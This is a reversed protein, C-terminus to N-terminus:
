EFFDYNKIFDFAKKVAPSLDSVNSVSVGIIRKEPPMIRRADADCSERQMVFPATALSALPIETESSTETDKKLICMLPDSFVEYFPFGPNVTKSLFGIDVVGTKLRDIIDEYSGKNRVSDPLM